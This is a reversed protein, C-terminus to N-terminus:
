IAEHLYPSLVTQRDYNTSIDYEWTEIMHSMSSERILMRRTLLLASVNISCISPITRETLTSISRLMQVQKSTAPKAMWSRRIFPTPIHQDAENFTVAKYREWDRGNESEYILIRQTIDSLVFLQKVRDSANDWLIWPRKLLCATRLWCSKSGGLTRTITFLASQELMDPVEQIQDLMQNTTTSVLMPPTHRLKPADPGQSPLITHNKM